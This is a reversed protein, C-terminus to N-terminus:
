ESVGDSIADPNRVKSAMRSIIGQVVRDDVEGEPGLAQLTTQVENQFAALAETMKSALLRQEESSRRDIAQALALRIVDSAPLTPDDVFEDYIDDEEEEEEEATGPASEAGGRRARETPDARGDPFAGVFASGDGKHRWRMETDGEVLFEDHILVESRTQPHGLKPEYVIEARDALSSPVSAIEEVRAGWWTASGDVSWLVEIESGVVVARQRVTM